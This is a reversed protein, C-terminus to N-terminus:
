LINYKWNMQLARIIEQARRTRVISDKEGRRDEYKSVTLTAKTATAMAVIATAAAVAAARRATM